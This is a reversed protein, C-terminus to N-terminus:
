SWSEWDSFALWSTGRRSARLQVHGDPLRLVRLTGELTSLRAETVVADGVGDGVDGCGESRKVLRERRQIARDAGQHLRKTFRKVHILSLGAGAVQLVEFRRELPKNIVNIYVM